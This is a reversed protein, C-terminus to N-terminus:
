DDPFLHRHLITVASEILQNCDRKHIDKLEACTLSGNAAAFEEGMRRVAGYIENKPTGAPRRLGDALAMATVAGCTHRMGGVGGGLGDALRGLTEPDLDGGLDPFALLVSRSCNAGGRRLSRALELRQELSLRGCNKNEVM